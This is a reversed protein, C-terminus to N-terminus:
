KIKENEMERILEQTKFITVILGFIFLPIFDFWLNVSYGLYKSICIWEDCLILELTIRAGIGFSWLGCLLIIINKIM